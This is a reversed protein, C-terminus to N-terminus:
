PEIMSEGDMGCPPDYTGHWGILIRGFSDEFHRAGNPIKVIGGAYSVLLVESARYEVAEGWLASSPRLDPDIATAWISEKDLLARQLLSAVAVHGRELSIDVSTKGKSSLSGVSAGLRILERCAAENGFYAAQHLFGWGSSEKQYRSCQRALLPMERWGSLVRDWEGIKAQEYAVEVLKQLENV